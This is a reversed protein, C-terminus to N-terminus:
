AAYGNRYLIKEAWCVPRGRNGRGARRLQYFLEREGNIAGFTYIGPVPDNPRNGLYSAITGAALSAPLEHLNWQPTSGPAIYYRTLLQLPDGPTHLIDEYINEAIGAGGTAPMNLLLVNAITLPSPATDADFPVAM